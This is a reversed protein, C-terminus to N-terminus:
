SERRFYYAQFPEGKQPVIAVAIKSVKIGKKLLNSAVGRSLNPNTGPGATFIWADGKSIRSMVGNEKCTWHALGNNDPWEVIVCDQHIVGLSTTAVVVAPTKVAISGFREALAPHCVIKDGLDFVENLEVKTSLNGLNAIM